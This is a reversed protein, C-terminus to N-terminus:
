FLSFTSVLDARDLQREAFERREESDKLKRRVNSLERRLESVTEGEADQYSQLRSRLDSMEEQLRSVEDTM